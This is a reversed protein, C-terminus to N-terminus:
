AGGTLISRKARLATRLSNIKEFIEKPKDIGKLVLKSDTKDV